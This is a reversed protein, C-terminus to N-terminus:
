NPTVKNYISTANECLEMWTKADQDGTVSLELMVGQSSHFCRMVSRKIGKKVEHFVLMAYIKSVNISIFNNYGTLIIGEESLLKTM